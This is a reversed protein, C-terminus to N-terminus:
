HKVFTAILAVKPLLAIPKNVGQTDACEFNEWHSDPHCARIIFLYSIKANLSIEKRKELRCLLLAVMMFHNTARAVNNMVELQTEAAGIWSEVEGVFLSFSQIGPVTFHHYWKNHMRSKNHSFVLAKKAIHIGEKISM